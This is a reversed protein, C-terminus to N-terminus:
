CGISEGCIIRRLHEQKQFEPSFIYIPYVRYDIQCINTFSLNPDYNMGDEYYWLSSLFAKAPSEDACVLYLQYLRPKNETAEFVLTKSQVFFRLSNTWTILNGPQVHTIM